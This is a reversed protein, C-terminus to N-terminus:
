FDKKSRMSFSGKIVGGKFSLSTRECAHTIFRKKKMITLMFIVNILKRYDIHALLLSFVCTFVVLKPLSIVGLFKGISCVVSSIVVTSLGPRNDSIDATRASSLHWTDAATAHVWLVRAAHMMWTSSSEFGPGM